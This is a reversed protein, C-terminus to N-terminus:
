SVVLPVRDYFEVLQTISVHCRAVVTGSGDFAEAALRGFILKTVGGVDTKGGFDSLDLVSVGYIQKVNGSSQARIVNQGGGLAVRDWSNPLESMRYASTDLNSSGPSVVFAILASETASGSLAKVVVKFGHVLYRAYLDTYETWGRPQNASATGFPNFADNLKFSVSALGTATLDILANTKMNAKLKDPTLTGISRRARVSRVKKSRKYSASTMKSDMASYKRKPM